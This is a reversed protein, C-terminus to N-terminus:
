LVIQPMLAIAEEQAAVIGFFYDVMVTTLDASGGDTRPTLAIRDLWQPPGLPADGLSSNASM